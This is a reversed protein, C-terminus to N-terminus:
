FMPHTFYFYRFLFMMCIGLVPMIIDWWTQATWEWVYWSRVFSGLKYERQAVERSVAFALVFCSAAIEQHLLLGAVLVPLSLLLHSSSKLFSM